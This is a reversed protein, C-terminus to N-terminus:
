VTAHCRRTPRGISFYDFGLREMEEPVYQNRGDFFATGTMTALVESLNLARFQKWETMLIIGSAGQAAELESGFQDLESKAIPDYARITAGAEQLRTALQLAPADRLDDTEPKFALGWMALTVGQLSGFHSEIRRFLREAQRENVQEVANLLPTDDSKLARLDKPLCSGGYGAGPYLYQGGIRPDAALGTRIHGVNAGLGECLCAIENMFSIRTALMANAAYKTLEASAIDMVLLRDRNLTFPAYLKRFQEAVDRKEVGVVVRYPKLCDAIADGEKLFEPNSAIEFPVDTEIWERVKLTTGVPVTSKTVITLPHTLHQGITRAASELYSLNPKGDIGSPTPLALFLMECGPLLEEYSTTFRLRSMNRALKEELGPEYIPSVGRKLQAVKDADIDLCVVSHGMDAFCVATVLGVYGTGVIGIQM